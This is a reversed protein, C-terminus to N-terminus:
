LKGQISLRTTSLKKVKMGKSKIKQMMQKLKTRNQIELIVNYSNQKLEFKNVKVNKNLLKALKKIMERKSRQENDIKMYKSLISNRTYSSHLSPYNELVQEIKAESEEISKVYRQAEVIFLIGFLIFVISLSISLKTTFISTTTISISKKPLKATFDDDAYLTDPPLIEKPIITVIGDIVTLVQNNSLLIPKSISHQMQQIFFINEVQSLSIGAEKLLELIENYKYAIFIWYKDEKYVFFSYDEKNDIYNDFISLVIKKAQYEQKIPLEEKKVIYNQPTLVVNFSEKTSIKPMGKYVLLLKKNNGM